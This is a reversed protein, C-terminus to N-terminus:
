LTKEMMEQVIRNLARLSFPKELHPLNSEKLFKRAEPEMDGTCFLFQRHINPNAAVAKQYFEIGDMVPMDTNSIVVNFFDRFIKDLGEQGNAATEIQGMGKLVDSLLERVATENEVILIKKDWIDPLRWTDGSVRLDEPLSELFKIAKEKHLEITAAVHQFMATRKQLTNIVYVFISNWETFETKVICDVVDKRTISKKSIAEYLDKFPLELTEKIDSDIRIAPLPTEKTEELFMMASGMIHFHWAEDDSMRSLFASFEQDKDLQDAAEMYVNSALMEMSRLWNIITKM